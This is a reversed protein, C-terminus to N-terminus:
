RRRRRWARRSWSCRCCRRRRARASGDASRTVTWSPMVVDLLVLDPEESEVLRLASDGDTATVVDYGRPALVAELLRVNQPVDDVVLIKADDSM